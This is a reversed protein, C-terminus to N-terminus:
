KSQEQTASYAFLCFNKYTQYITEPSSKKLDKETYINIVTKKFVDNIKNHKKASIKKLEQHLTIGKDRDRAISSAFVGFSECGDLTDKPYSNDALLPSSVLITIVFVLFNKM